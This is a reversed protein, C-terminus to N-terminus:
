LKVLCVCNSPSSASQSDQNDYVAQNPCCTSCCFNSQLQFNFYTEDEPNEIGTPCTMTTDCYDRVHIAFVNDGCIYHNGVFLPQAVTVPVDTSFAQNAAAATCYGRNSQVDDFEYGNLYGTEVNNDVILSINSRNNNYESADTLYFSKRLFLDTGEPFFTNYNNTSNFCETNYGFPTYGILWQSDDYDPSYWPRGLTDNAPPAVSTENGTNQSSSNPNVLNNPIALYRWENQSFNYGTQGFPIPYCPQNYPNQVSNSAVVTATCVAVFLACVRM